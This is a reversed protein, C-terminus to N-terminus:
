SPRSARSWASSPSACATWRTGDTAYGVRATASTSRRSGCRAARRSGARRHRSRNSDPAIVALEIGPVELLARRLAQLGEAEIGDDNTLLVRVAALINRRVARGRGVPRMTHGATLAAGKRCKRM